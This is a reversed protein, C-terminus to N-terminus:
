IRCDEAFKRFPFSVDESIVFVSLVLNNFDLDAIKKPTIRKKEARSSNVEWALDETGVMQSKEHLVYLTQLRRGLKQEPDSGVQYSIKIKSSKMSIDCYLVVREDFLSKLKNARAGTPTAEYAKRFPYILGYECYYHGDFFIGGNGSQKQQKECALGQNFWANAKTKADAKSEVIKQSAHASEGLKGNKLAILSLDALARANDPALQVALSINRYASEIEGAQYQQEAKVVYDNVLKPVQQPLVPQLWREIEAIRADPINPNKETAAPGTYHHLWDLPTEESEPYHRHNHATIHPQAGSDLLLRILDPSGYRVAYHLPTMNSTQLTYYCSDPPLTTVSNINAGQKILLAASAPENYQAAYMLPTKGFSNARDSPIGKDLLFSLAEPYQIAINLISEHSESNDVANSNTEEVSEADFQIARIANIDQKSLILRRLDEEGSAFGPDYEYFRIGKSVAGKVATEAIQTSVDMPWANTEHYFVALQRTTKGIQNEFDRLMKYQVLGVLAWRNLNRLDNEYSGDADTSPDVEALVWPRYLTEDIAVHVDESWRSATQMSGCSGAGGMVGAASQRLASLSELVNAKKIIEEKAVDNPAVAIKCAPAWRGEKALKYILIQNKVTYINAVSFMYIDGQSSKAMTYSNSTAPPAEKAFSEPYADYTNDREPFPQTSVLMQNTECAGGCGPNAVYGLYYTKGFADVQGSSADGLITWNLISGTQEYGHGRIGYAAEFSENSYFKKQVDELLQTCSADNNEVLTPKYWSSQVNLENGFAFNILSLCLALTSFFRM